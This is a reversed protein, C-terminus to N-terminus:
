RQDEVVRLAAREEIEDSTPHGSGARIFLGMFLAVPVAVAFWIAGILGAWKLVEQM